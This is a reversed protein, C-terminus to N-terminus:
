DCPPRNHINRDTGFDHATLIAVSNRYLTITSIIQKMVGNRQHQGSYQSPIYVYIHASIKNTYTIFLHMHEHVKYIQVIRPRMPIYTYLCYIYMCVTYQTNYVTFM